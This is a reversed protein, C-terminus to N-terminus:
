KQLTVENKKKKEKIEFLSSRCFKRNKARKENKKRKKKEKKEESNEGSARSVSLSVSACLCLCPSVFVAGGRLWCCCHVVGRGVFDRRRGPRGGAEGGRGLGGSDRAHALEARREGRGQAARQRRRVVLYLLPSLLFHLFLFLHLFHSNPIRRHRTTSLRLFSSFFEVVVEKKM